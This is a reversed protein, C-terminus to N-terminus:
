RIVACLFFCLGPSLTRTRKHFAPIRSLFSVADEVGYVDANNINQFLGYARGPHVSAANKWMQGPNHINERYITNYIHVSAEKKLM